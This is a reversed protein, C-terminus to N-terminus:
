VVAPLAVLVLNRGNRLLQAYQARYANMQVTRRKPRAKLFFALVLTKGRFDALQVPSRLVGYRTAGSLTFDPAVTGVALPTPDPPSAPAAPQQAALPAAALLAAVTLHRVM